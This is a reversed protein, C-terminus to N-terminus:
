LGFKVSKDYFKYDFLSVLMLDFKALVSLSDDVIKYEQCKLNQLRGLENYWVCQSEAEPFQQFLEEESLSIILINQIILEIYRQLLSNNIFNQDQQRKMIYFRYSMDRSEWEFCKKDSKNGYWQNLQKNVKLSLETFDFKFAHLLYSEFLECIGKLLLNCNKWVTKLDRVIRRFLVSIFDRFTSYSSQYCIIRPLLFDDPYFSFSHFFILFFFFLGFVLSFCFLSHNYFFSFQFIFTYLFCFLLYINVIVVRGKLLHYLLLQFNFIRLTKRLDVVLNYYVAIM